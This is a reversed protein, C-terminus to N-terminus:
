EEPRKIGVPEQLSGAGAARDVVGGRRRHEKKRRATAKGAGVVSGEGKARRVERTGSRVESKKGSRLGAPGQTFQGIQPREPEISLVCLSVGPLRRFSEKRPLQFAHEIM